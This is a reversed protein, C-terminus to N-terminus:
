SRHPYALAVMLLLLLVGSTIQWMLVPYREFLPLTRTDDQQHHAPDLDSMFEGLSQYRSRYELHLARILVDNLWFPLQPQANSLQNFTLEQGQAHALQKITFPRQGTLLEYTMVALSFLDSYIGKPADGYYEPATYHLDGAPPANSKTNLLSGASGFDILKLLGQENLIVNEPKLDQHLFYNRHMVRLALGIKYIIAHTQEISLPGHTDMFARLTIGKCFETVHYLYTSGPSRPYFKLLSDHNFSLGIKEEKLFQRIGEADDEFYASLTKIVRREGQATTAAYLCSRATNQLIDTITFGEFTAGVVLVPPVQLRQQQSVTQATEQVCLVMCTVNDRSGNELAAQCLKQCVANLDLNFDAAMQQSTQTLVAQLLVAMEPQNLYEYVGDTMLLLFDHPKLALRAYQWDVQLTLNADAGLVAALAGKFRGKTHRHDETLQEFLVSETLQQAPPLSLRYIRSDGCHFMHLQSQAILVGSLTSLYVLPQQLSAGFYLTDNAQQIAQAVANTVFSSDLEPQYQQSLSTLIAQSAQLSAQKPSQCASVGDALAALFWHDSPLIHSQKAPLLDLSDNSQTLSDIPRALLSDQNESKKGALSCWGTNIHLM